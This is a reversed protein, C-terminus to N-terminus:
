KSLFVTVEHTTTDIWTVSIVSSRLYGDARARNIAISCADVQSPTDITYTTIM